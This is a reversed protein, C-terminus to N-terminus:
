PAQRAPAVLELETVEGAEVRVRLLPPHPTEAAEELVEFSIQYEGPRVEEIVFRGDAATTDSYSTGSLYVRARDVPEGGASARVIGTVAGTTVRRPTVVVRSVEGGETRYGILEPHVANILVVRPMRIWWRRVFWGGGELWEFDVQGGVRDGGVRYPAPLNRYSYELRRLESTVRDIWLVGDVDPLRSDEVPSFGLGILHPEDRPGDQVRFCHGQLFEDSLLTRADPAYFQTEGGRAQVFGGTALEEPPLSAFPPVPSIGRYRRVPTATLALQADLDRKELQVAFSLLRTEEAWAAVNLAKRAEEWLRHAADGAEPRVVCRRARATVEVGALPIAEQALVIPLRVTSGPQLELPESVYTSHGIMEVRVRYQGAGPARLTFRGAGDALTGRLAEGAADLLRVFAGSLPNGSEAAVSGEVAQARLPVPLLLLPLIAVIIRLM